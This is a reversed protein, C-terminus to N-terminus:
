KLLAPVSSPLQNAQALMAAGAQQLIQNKSLTATAAAFDLDTIRSKASTQSQSFESLNSIIAAM